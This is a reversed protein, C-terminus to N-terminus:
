GPLEDRIARASPGLPEAAISRRRKRRPSAPANAHLVDEPHAEEEDIEYGHKRPRFAELLLAEM